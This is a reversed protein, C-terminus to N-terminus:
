EYVDTYQSIKRQAAFTYYTCDRLGRDPYLSSEAGAAASVCSCHHLAAQIACNVLRAATAVDGRRATDAAAAAAAAPSIAATVSSTTAQRLQRLQETVV